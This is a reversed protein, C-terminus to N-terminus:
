WRARGVVLTDTIGPDGPPEGGEDAPAIAITHGSFTDSVSITIDETGTAGAAAQTEWSGAISRTTSGAFDYLENTDLQSTAWDFTVGGSVGPLWMILRDPGTTVISPLTILTGAVDSAMGDAADMATALTPHQGSVRTIAFASAAALDVTFTYTAPESATAKKVAVIDSGATALQRVDWPTFGAYDTVVLAASTLRIHAVLLEGDAVAAPVDGIHSTGSANTRSTADNHATPAPM